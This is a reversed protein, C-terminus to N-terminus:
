RITELEKELHVIRAKIYNIEEKNDAREAWAVNENLDDIIDVVRQRNIPCCSILLLVLLLIIFRMEGGGETRNAV